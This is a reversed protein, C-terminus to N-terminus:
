LRVCQLNILLMIWLNQQILNKIKLLSKQEL